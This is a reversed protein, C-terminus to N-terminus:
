AKRRQDLLFSLRLVYVSGTFINALCITTFMAGKSVDGDMFGSYAMKGAIVIVVAFIILLFITMKLSTSPMKTKESEITKQTM